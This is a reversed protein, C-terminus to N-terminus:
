RAGGWAWVPQGEDTDGVSRGPGAARPVQTEFDSAGGGDASTIEWRGARTSIQLRYVLPWAAREDVARLRVQIRTKVGDHPVPGTAIPDDASIQEAKVREYVPGDVPALQVGPALYREVKGADTKTLYASLFKEATQGTESTEPVPYRYASDPVKLTAPGAVRSPGATVAIEEAGDTDATLLPVAFYSLRGGTTQVAVTVTWSGDPRHVSRVATVRAADPQAGESPEPLNVGPAMARLRRVVAGEGRADSRLWLTMFLEAYGSPAGVNEM